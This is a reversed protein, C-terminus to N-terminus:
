EILAADETVCPIGEQRALSVYQADYVTIGWALADRLVIDSPPAVENASFLSEAQELLVMAKEASMGGFRVYKWLISQIEVLWLPPVLWEPDRARLDHADKTHMGEIVYFALINADVVIM